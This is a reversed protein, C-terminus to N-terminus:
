LTLKQLEKYNAKLRKLLIGYILRYFLYLLGSVIILALLQSILMITFFLSENIPFEAAEPVMDYLMEPNLFMIINIVVTFLIYMGINYVIYYHVTKRTRLINKMLLGTNDTVSISQYNKYFLLLFGALVLYHVIQAVIALTKLNLVQYIELYSEPIFITLLGWFAFEGLCIVFLWKVISSSKKHIVEYIDQYSLKPCTDGLRKWDRKLLDLGEM